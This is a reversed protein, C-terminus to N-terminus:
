PKEAFSMELEVIVKDTISCLFDEDVYKGTAICAKQIAVEIRIRDFDVFSGDRKQVHRFSTDGQAAHKQQGQLMQKRLEEHEKRYLIYAKAVEFLGEKALTREVADQIDEVHPAKEACRAKLNAIIRDTIATLFLTDADKGTAICAKQIATEIRKRDFDVLSGDRKQIHRILTDAQPIYKQQELM